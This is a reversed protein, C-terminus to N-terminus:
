PCQTSRPTGLAESIHLKRRYVRSKLTNLNIKLKSSWQRLTLTEGNYTYTSAPYPKKNTPDNQEEATAWKCNDPAYGNENKIRHISHQESPRRGMDALFLAYDSWRDCVRVGRDYYYKKEGPTAKDSCRRHMLRWTAYEVTANRRGDIWVCDGHKQNKRHRADGPVFRGDPHQRSHEVPM